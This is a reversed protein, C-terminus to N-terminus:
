LKQNKSIVTLETESDIKKIRNIMSELIAEDGVNGSGYFGSILIKTM